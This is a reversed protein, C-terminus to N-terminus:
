VWHQLFICGIKGNSISYTEIQGNAPVDLTSCTSPDDLIEYGNALQFM